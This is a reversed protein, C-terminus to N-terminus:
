INIDFSAKALDYHISQIFTHSCDFVVNAIDPLLGTTNSVLKVFEIAHKRIIIINSM